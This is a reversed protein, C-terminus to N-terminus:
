LESVWACEFEVDVRHYFKDSPNVGLDDLLYVQEYGRMDLFNDPLMVDTLDYIIEGRNKEIFDISIKM